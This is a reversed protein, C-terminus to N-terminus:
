NAGEGLPHVASRGEVLRGYIQRLESMKIDAWRRGGARTKM